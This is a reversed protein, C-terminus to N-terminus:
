RRGRLDAVLRAADVGDYALSGKELELFRLGSWEILTVDHTAM